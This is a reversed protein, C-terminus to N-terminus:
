YKNMKMIRDTEVDQIGMHLCMYRRQLTGQINKSRSGGGKPFIWAMDRRDDSFSKSPQRLRRGFCLLVFSYPVFPVLLFGLLPPLEDGWSAELM